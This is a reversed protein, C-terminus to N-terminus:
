FFKVGACRGSVRCAVRLFWASWVRWSSVDWASAWLHRSSVEQWWTWPGLFRSPLAGLTRVRWSCFEPACPTGAASRQPVSVSPWAAQCIGSIYCAPLERRIATCSRRRPGGATGCACRSWASVCPLVSPLVSAFVSTVIYPCIIDGSPKSGLHAKTQCAMSPVRNKGSSCRFM